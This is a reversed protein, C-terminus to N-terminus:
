PGVELKMPDTAFTSKNGNTATATISWSGESLHVDELKWIWSVNGNQDAQQAPLSHVTTGSTFSITCMAGATTTCTSDITNPAPQGDLNPHHNSVFTGVPTQPTVNSDIQPTASTPSEDKSTGISASSSSDKEKIAASGGSPTSPTVPTNTNKQKLFYFAGLLALTIIIVSVILISFKKNNHIKRLSLM